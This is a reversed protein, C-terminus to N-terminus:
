ALGRDGRGRTRVLEAKAFSGRSMKSGFVIGVIALATFLSPWAIEDLERYEADLLSMLCVVLAVTSAILVGAALQGITTQKQMEAYYSM